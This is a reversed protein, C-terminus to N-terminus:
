SFTVDDTDDVELGERLSSMACTSCVATHKCVIHVLYILPTSNISRQEVVHFTASSCLFVDVVPAIFGAFILPHV